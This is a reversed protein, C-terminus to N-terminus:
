NNKRGITEVALQAIALEENTPYIVIKVKSDDTSIVRPESSRRSNAEKDIKVDLMSKIKEILRVRVGADNEGIGATFVLADVGGLLAAYGGVYFALRHIYVDMTLSAQKDGKEILNDLDRMDSVGSLGEVGSKKNLCNDIEDISMNQTRALHFVVAPDIDGSRTGMVLGQLPTLGM